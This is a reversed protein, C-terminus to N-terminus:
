GDRPLMTYGYLGLGPGPGPRLTLIARSHGRSEVTGDDNYSVVHYSPTRASLPEAAHHRCPAGGRRPVEPDGTHKSAWFLMELNMMNDIIVPYKWEGFDWSRIVGIVSDQRSILSNAAEVIVDASHADHLAQQQQGYSCFVMFGLDHTGRIINYAKSARPSSRPRPM